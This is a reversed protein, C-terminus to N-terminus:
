VGSDKMCWLVGVAIANSRRRFRFHVLVYWELHIEDITVPSFPVHGIVEDQSTVVLSLTLRNNYRLEEVVVAERGNSYTQNIFAATVLSLIFLHQKLQEQRIMYGKTESVLM